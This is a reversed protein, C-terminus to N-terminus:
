ADLKADEKNTINKQERIENALSESHIVISDNGIFDIKKEELYNHPFSLEIKDTRVIINTYRRFIESKPKFITSIPMQNQSAYDIIKKSDKFFMTGIERIDIEKKPTSIAYNKVQNLFDNREIKVNNEDLPLDIERLIKLLCKNNETDKTLETAGIWKCFFQSDINKRNIFTLYSDAKNQYTTKNIRCAMALHEYDIHISNNIVFSKTINDINFVSGKKNRILFIGVFNGYSEYDAFVIYGGKASKAITLVKFLENTVSKSLELFSNDNQLILYKDFEGKFNTPANDEFAGRAEGANKYRDNLETTTEVSNDDIPVISKSLIPPNPDKHEKKQIEHIIIRNVKM